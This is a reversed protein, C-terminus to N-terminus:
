DDEPPIFDFDIEEGMRQELWARLNKRIRAELQRVREKSVGFRSGLESLSAPDNSLLRDAWIVQDRDDKLTAAFALLHGHVKAGLDRDAVQEDVPVEGEMPVFESLVAGGEGDAGVPADLSLAPARMHQDM